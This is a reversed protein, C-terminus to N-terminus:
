GSSRMLLNRGMIGVNYFVRMKLQPFLCEADISLEQITFSGRVGLTELTRCSLGFTRPLAETLESQFDLHCIRLGPLAKTFREVDSDNIKVRM